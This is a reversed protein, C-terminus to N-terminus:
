LAPTCGTQASRRNQLRGWSEVPRHQWHELCQSAWAIAGPEGIFPGRVLGLRAMDLCYARIELEYLPAVVLAMPHPLPNAVAWAKMQNWGVDALAMVASQLNLVIARADREILMERVTPMVVQPTQATVVGALRVVLVEGVREARANVVHSSSFVVQSGGSKNLMTGKGCGKGVSTNRLRGSVQTIRMTEWLRPNYDGM